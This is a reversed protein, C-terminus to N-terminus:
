RISKTVLIGLGNLLASGFTGRTGFLCCLVGTAVALVLNLSFNYANKKRKIPKTLKSLKEKKPIRWPKRQPRIVPRHKLWTFASDPSRKAFRHHSCPIATPQRRRSLCIGHYLQHGDALNIKIAPLFIWPYITRDGVFDGAIPWCKKTRPNFGCTCTPM